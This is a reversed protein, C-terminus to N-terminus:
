AHRCSFVTFDNAFGAPMASASNVGMFVRRVFDPLWAIVNTSTKTTIQAKNKMKIIKAIIGSIPAL